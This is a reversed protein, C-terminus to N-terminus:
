FAFHHSGAAWASPTTLPRSITILSRWGGIRPKRL